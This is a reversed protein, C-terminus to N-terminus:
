SCHKLLGNRALETTTEFEFLYLNGQNSQEGMFIYKLM